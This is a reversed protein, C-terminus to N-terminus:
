LQKALPLDPNIGLEQCHKRADQARQCTGQATYWAMKKIAKRTADIMRKERSM